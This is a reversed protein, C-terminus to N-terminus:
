RVAHMLLKVERADRIHKGFFNDKLTFKILDTTSLIIWWTRLYCLLYFCQYHHIVQSCQYQVNVNSHKVITIFSKRQELRSQTFKLRITDFSTGNSELSLIINIFNIKIAVGFIFCSNQTIQQKHNKMDQNDHWNCQCFLFFSIHCSLQVHKPQYYCHQECFDLRSSLHGVNTQYRMKAHTM